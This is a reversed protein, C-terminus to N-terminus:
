DKNTYQVMALLFLLLLMSNCLFLRVCCVSNTVCEIKQSVNNGGTFTFLQIYVGHKLFFM